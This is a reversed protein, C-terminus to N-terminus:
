VFYSLTVAIFFVPNKTDAINANTQTSATNEQLLISSSKRRARADALSSSPAVVVVAASVGTTVVGGSCIGKVSSATAALVVTVNTFM